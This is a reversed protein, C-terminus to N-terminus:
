SDLKRIPDAKQAAERQQASMSEATLCMNISKVITAMFTDLNRSLKLPDKQLSFHAQGACTALAALAINMPTAALAKSIRDVALALAAEDTDTHARDAAQATVTPKSM